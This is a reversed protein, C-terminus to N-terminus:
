AATEWNSRASVSSARPAFAPNASFPTVRLPPGSERIVKGTIFDVTVTEGGPGRGVTLNGQVPLTHEVVLQRIYRYHRIEDTSEFLPNVVSTATALVLFGAMILVLPWSGRMSRM